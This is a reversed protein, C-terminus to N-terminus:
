GQPQIVRAPNESKGFIGQVEVARLCSVDRPVTGEGEARSTLTSLNSATRCGPDAPGETGSDFRVSWVGWGVLVVAAVPVNGPTAGATDIPSVRHQQSITMVFSFPCRVQVARIVQM